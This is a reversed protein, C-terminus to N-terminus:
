KFKVLLQYSGSAPMTIVKFGGYWQPGNSPGLSQIENAATVYYDAIPHGKLDHILLRQGATMGTGTLEIQDILIPQDYSDGEATVTLTSQGHTIGM